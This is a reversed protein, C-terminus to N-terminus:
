TMDRTLILTIEEETYEKPDKERLIVAVRKGTLLRLQKSYMISSKLKDRDLWLFITDFDECLKYFSKPIYSGLLSVTNTVKGVKIASLIDEVVVLDKNESHSFNKFYVNKANVQRVNIYKPNIKSPTDLSRSQYYVLTEGEFIPLIIRNYKSSFGFHFKAIDEKFIGYKYFWQLATKPMDESFDYPLKIELQEGSQTPIVSLSNIYKVLETPTLNGRPIFGSAGCNHCHWVEGKDTQKVYLRLRMDTCPAGRCKYKDLNLAHNLRSEM